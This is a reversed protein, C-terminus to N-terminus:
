WLFMEGCSPCMEGVEVIGSGCYECTYIPTRTPNRLVDKKNRQYSSANILFDILTFVSNVVLRAHRDAPKYKRAHADGMTNRLSSIGNVISVIGSLVQKLSSSINPQAPDLNLLKQVRRYLKLLDGDYPEQDSDLLKELELLVAELLARANTISGDYDGKSIKERCKNLQEKIFEHNPDGSTIFINSIEVFEQVTELKYVDDQRKLVLGDFKLYRNLYNVAEELSFKTEYFRRPDLSKEIIEKIFVSNNCQRLKSQCYIWRSPFDEYEDKSGFQNFFGILDPGTKYPSLSKDGISNGSIIKELAEISEQSLKFM